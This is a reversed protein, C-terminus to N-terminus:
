GHWAFERRWGFKAFSVGEHQAGAHAVALATEGGVATKDPGGMPDDFAGVPLRRLRAAVAEVAKQSTAAGAAQSVPGVLRDPEHDVDHSALDDVEAVLDLDGASPDDEAAVPQLRQREHGAEAVEIGAM